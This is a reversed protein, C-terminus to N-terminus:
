LRVILGQIIPQFRHLTGLSNLLSSVSTMRHTANVNLHVNVSRAPVTIQASSLRSLRMLIAVMGKNANGRTNPKWM